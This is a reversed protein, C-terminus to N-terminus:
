SEEVPTGTESGSYVMPMAINISQLDDSIGLNMDNLSPNSKFIPDPEYDDSSSKIQNELGKVRMEFM